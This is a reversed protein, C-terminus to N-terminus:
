LRTSVPLDASSRGVEFEYEGAPAVARGAAPDWRELLWAQVEFDLDRSDGAELFVREFGVLVRLPDADPGEQTAEVRRAYVQVVEHGAIAGSNTVSVGVTVTVTGSGSEHPMVTPTGYEFATYSLGHGFPFIHERRSHRYTWGSGIM